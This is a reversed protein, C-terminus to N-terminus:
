DVAPRSLIGGNRPSRCHSIVMAAMARVRSASRSERGVGEARAAQAFEQMETETYNGADNGDGAIVNGIDTWDVGAKQMERQGAIFANKREGGSSGPLHFLQAIRKKNPGLDPM